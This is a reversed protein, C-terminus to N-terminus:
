QASSDGLLLDQQLKNITDGLKAAKEFELNKAALLMEKKLKSIEKEATEFNMKKDNNTLPQDLDMKISGLLNNTSKKITTPEINNEKNYQEQIKRRRSTEDLAKKM